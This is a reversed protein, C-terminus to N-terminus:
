GEIRVPRAKLPNAEGRGHTLKRILMIIRKKSMNFTLSNKNNKILWLITSLLKNKEVGEFFKAKGGIKVGKVFGIEKAFKKIDTLKRLYIGEKERTPQFGLRQLWMFFQKQLTPHKCALKIRPLIQTKEKRKQFTVSISGELSFLLQLLEKQRKLPIKFVTQTLKAPPFSGNAHKLTRYSPSLKFLERAANKSHFIVQPTGRSDDRIFHKIKFIKRASMKFIEQLIESNNTLYIKYTRKREVIGGDALLMIHLKLLEFNM